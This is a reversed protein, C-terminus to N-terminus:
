PVCVVKTSAVNVNFTVGCTMGKAWVIRKSILAVFFEM